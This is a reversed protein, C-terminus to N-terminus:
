AKVGSSTIYLSKGSWGGAARTRVTVPITVPKLEEAIVINFKIIFSQSNGDYTNNISKIENVNDVLVISRLLKNDSVEKISSGTETGILLKYPCPTENEVKEGYTYRAITNLFYKLNNANNLYNSLKSILNNRFLYYFDKGFFELNDKQFELALDAFVGQSKTESFAEKSIDFNSIAKKANTSSSPVKKSSENWSDDIFKKIDNAQTGGLKEFFAVINTNFKPTVDAGKAIKNSYGIFNGDELQIIIDSPNNPNINGPKGRPTWYLNRISKDKLDKKLIKANNFGIKIDRQPTEDKNILDILESFSVEKGEGTLVGTGGEKGKLDEVTSFQPNKLFYLSLFENVNSSATSDKRTKQGYHSTVKNKPISIFVNM